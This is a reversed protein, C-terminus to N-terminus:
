SLAEGGGQLRGHRPLEFHFRTKLGPDSEYGITGGHTDIIARCISLGLGTGGVSRTDSSDAQTFKEFVRERFSEPIGPGRDAVEVRLAGNGRRVTVEVTEGEPSFKAANSLLNTVVQALRAPDGMVEASDAAPVVDVKVGLRDAYARNATVVQETLVNLDVVEMRFEMRGSEIKEIDLIDNVLGILRESNSEAIRLLERAPVPVEGVAGGLVLGLSGHISTLPTRLEHSVTSVFETKMREVRKRESIDSM